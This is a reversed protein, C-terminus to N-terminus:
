TTEKTESESPPEPPPMWGYPTAGRLPRYNRKGDDVYWHAIEVNDYHQEPMLWTVVFTGRDNYVLIATEGDKPATSMPQWNM